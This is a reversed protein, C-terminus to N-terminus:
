DHSLVKMTGRGREVPDGVPSVSRSLQDRISGQFVHDPNGQEAFGVLTPSVRDARCTPRQEGLGRDAGDGVFQPDDGFLTMVGVEKKEAWGSELAEYKAREEAPLLPLLSADPRFRNRTM